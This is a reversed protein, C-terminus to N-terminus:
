NMLDFSPSSSNSNLDIVRDLTTVDYPYGRYEDIYGYDNPIREDFFVDQNPIPPHMGDGDYRGPYRWSNSFQRQRSYYRKDM